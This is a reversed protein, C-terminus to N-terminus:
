QAQARRACRGLRAQQHIETPREDDNLTYSMKLSDGDLSMSARSRAATSKWTSRAQARADPRAERHRRDRRRSKADALVQDAKFERVADKMMEVPNGNYQFSEVIWKGQLKQLDADAAQATPTHALLACVSVAARALFRM